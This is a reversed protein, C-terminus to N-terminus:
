AAVVFDVGETWGREQLLARVRERGGSLGVASVAYPRPSEAFLSEMSDVPWRRDPGAILGGIKKPDVDIFGDVDFNEASLARALRKGVPGAGLILVRRGAVARKLERSLFHARAALFREEGYRPHTQTAQSDHIRWGHLTEPIRAIRGGCEWMRLLLDWDEPWNPDRWGGLEAVARTRLLLSSAMLPSEVFRDRALEDAGTLENQWVFYRRMGDGLESEPFPRVKCTVADLSEDRELMEVQLALRNPRSVDDADMRAIFRGRVAGLGLNLAPVVGRESPATRAVVIRRDNAAARLLIAESDDVSGDEVAIVEFDEFTQAALSDLAEGLWPAADRVPLLFSVEPPTM